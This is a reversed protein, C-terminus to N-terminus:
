ITKAANWGEPLLKASTFEGVSEFRDAGVEDLEPFMDCPQWGPAIEDFAKQLEERAPIKGKGEFLIRNRVYGLLNQDGEIKRHKASAIRHATIAAIKLANM